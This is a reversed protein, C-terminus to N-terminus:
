GDVGTVERLWDLQRYYEWWGWSWINLRVGWMQITKNGYNTEETLKKEGGSDHEEKVKSIYLKVDQARRMDMRPRTASLGWVLGWWWM